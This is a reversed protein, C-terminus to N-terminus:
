SCRPHFAAMDHGGRHRDLQAAGMSQNMEKIAHGVLARHRRYQVIGLGPDCIGFVQAPNDVVATINMLQACARGHQDAASRAQQAVPDIVQATNLFGTCIGAALSFRLLPGPIREPRPLM